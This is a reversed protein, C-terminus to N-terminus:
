KGTRTGRSRDDKVAAVSGSKIGPIAQKMASHIAMQVQMPTVGSDPLHINYTDGGGLQNTPIMTGDQKPVFEERGFEGVDLPQGAKVDGGLAEHTGGFVTSAFGALKGFFGSAGSQANGGDSDDDGGFLSKGLNITGQDVNGGGMGGVIMVSYPNSKSGDAKGGIGLSKLVPAEARKLADQSLTKGIGRFMQGFNAKKGTMLQSLNDNLGDLTQRYLAVVQAASDQSDQVWAANANKLAGQWTAAASNAADQMVQVSRDADAKDIAAQANVTAASNPDKATQLALEAKLARMTQAYQAAHINAQQTAADLKSIQGTQVEIALAAEAYATQQNGKAQSAKDRALEAQESERRAALIAQTMKGWAQKYNEGGQDAELVRIAWYDAEDQATRDSSGAWEDHDLEWAERQAKIADAASKKAAEMDERRQREIAQTQKGLADRYNMSGVGVAQVKATWFTVEDAASRQTAQEFLDHEVDWQQRQEEAAKRQAELAKRAAEEAKRAAEDSSKDNAKDQKDQGLQTTLKTRNVGGDYQAQQDILQQGRGEITAIKASNNIPNNPGQTIGGRDAAFGLPVSKAQEDKLRGSETRYSDIQKQYANHVARDFADTAAQIGKPDTAKAFAADRKHGADEIEKQLNAQDAKLQDAQTNTRAPGIGVSALVAGFTGTDHKQLLEDLQKRDAALSVLLADAAKKAELLSTALGNNPHGEIKDIQDQLKSNELDIDDIREQASNHLDDFDRRTTQAMHQVKEFAEYGKEGMDVLLGALGAAGILPFLAQLAGAAGPIMSLFQEDARLGGGRLLASSAQRSSVSEVHNTSTSAVSNLNKLEDAVAKNKKSIRDLSAITRNANTETVSAIMSASRRQIAELESASAGVEKAAKVQMKYSDLIQNKARVVAEGSKSVAQGAANVNRQFRGTDADFVVSVTSPM